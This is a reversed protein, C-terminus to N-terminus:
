KKAKAKPAKEAKAKPVQSADANDKNNDVKKVKAPSTAADFDDCLKTALEM